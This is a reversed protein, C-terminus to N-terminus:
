GTEQIRQCVGRRVCVYVGCVCEGGSLRLPQHPQVTGTNSDEEQPSSSESLWHTGTQWWRCGQSILTSSLAHSNFVTKGVYMPYSHQQTITWLVVQVPLPQSALRHALSWQSCHKWLVTNASTDAIVTTLLSPANTAFIESFLMQPLAPQCLHGLYCTCKSDRQQWNEQFLFTTHAAHSDIVM